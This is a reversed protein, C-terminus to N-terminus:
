FFFYSFKVDIHKENIYDPFKNIETNQISIRIKSALLENGAAETIEVNKIKGSPFVKFTVVIPKYDKTVQNISADTGYQLLWYLRIKDKIQKYYPAYEHKKVNFSEVGRLLANSINDEFLPADDGPLVNNVQQESSKYRNQPTNAARERRGAVIRKMLEKSISATETYEEVPDTTEETEEEAVDIDDRETSEPELVAVDSELAASDMEEASEVAEADHSSLAQSSMEEVDVDNVDQVISEDETVDNEEVEDSDPLEERKDAESLEAATEDEVLNEAADEAEDEVLESLSIDIPMGSGQSVTAAFEDPVKGPFVTESELRPKDNINNEGSYMDRAISGKEGIKNTEAQPEEDVTRGSTDVFLQRKEERVDAEILEEPEVNEEEQEEPELDIEIVYNSEKTGYDSYNLEPKLLNSLNSTSFIFILHLIGSIALFCIFITKNDYAIRPKLHM